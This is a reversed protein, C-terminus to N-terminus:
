KVAGFTLGSVIRKRLVLTMVVIPAIILSSAATLKGWDTGFM